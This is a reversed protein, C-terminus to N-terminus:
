TARTPSRSGSGGAPGWPLTARSQIQRAAVVVTTGHCDQKRFTPTQAVEYWAGVLRAQDYAAVAVLPVSLDRVPEAHMMQPLVAALVLAKWM